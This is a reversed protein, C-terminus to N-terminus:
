KDETSEPYDKPQGQRELEPGVGPPPVPKDLKQEGYLDLEELPPLSPLGKEAGQAIAVRCFNLVQEENARRMKLGNVELQTQELQEALDAEKQVHGRDVRKAKGIQSLHLGFAALILLPGIAWWNDLMTLSFGDPAAEIQLRIIHAHYGTILGAVMHLTSVFLAFLKSM